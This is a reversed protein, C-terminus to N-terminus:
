DQYNLIFPNDGGEIIEIVENCSNLAKYFEFWLVLLRPNSANFSPSYTFQEKLPHEAAYSYSDTGAEGFDYGEEQGYYLRLDAYSANILFELGDYTKYYDPVSATSLDKEELFKECSIICPLLSLVIIILKIKKM